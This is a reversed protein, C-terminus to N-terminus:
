EASKHFERILVESIADAFADQGSQIKSLDSTDTVYGLELTYTEPATNSKCYPNYPESPNRDDTFAGTVIGGTERIMYNYCSNLTPEYPKLGKEKNAAITDDIDAQTFNRAFVSDGVTNAALSANQLGTKSTIAAALELAFSYDNGVASYIELGKERGSNLHLSLVYKASGKCSRAIRGDNGYIDIYEDQGHTMGVKMGAAELKAKVKAAISYVTKSETSNNGVAIGTDYGGHGPDLMVDFIEQDLDPAAILSMTNYFTESGVTVVNKANSMSHYVTEPYDSANKIPYYLFHLEPEVINGEADTETEDEDFAETEDPKKKKIYYATEEETEEEDFIGGISDTLSAKAPESVAETESEKLPKPSSVRIFMAYEGKPITDPLIGRNLKDSISFESGETVIPYEIFNGEYDYLVLKMGIDEFEQTEAPLTGKMNLHTGYTYIENVQASSAEPHLIKAAEAAELAEQAKRKNDNIVLVIIVALVVLIAFIIGALKLKPKSKEQKEKKKRQLLRADEYKEHYARAGRKTGKSM